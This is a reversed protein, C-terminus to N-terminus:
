IRIYEQEPKSGCSGKGAFVAKILANDDKPDTEAEVNGGIDEFYKHGPFESLSKGKMIHREDIFHGPRDQDAETDRQQDSGNPKSWFSGSLLM